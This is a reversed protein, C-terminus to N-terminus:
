KERKGTKGIGRYFQNGAEFEERLGGTRLNDRLHALKQELRLLAQELNETNTFAIDRWMSYPSAAIRTMERLARGGVVRADRDGGIEDELTSALATALMQPLHSVWACLRDHREADIEIVKAGMRAVWDKWSTARGSTARGGETPVFLWAAGRFLEAEAAEIGRHEKGAMPHGGLFRQSAAKGWVKSAKRVIEVKTSGVDTVFATEPLRPGMRELFDLIAGVPTALVVLDSGRVAQGPDSSGDSIAGSERARALVEERDCGAIRGAFGARRLALGVSGGILGVGVITIQQFSM